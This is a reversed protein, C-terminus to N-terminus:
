STPRSRATAPSASSASMFPKALLNDALRLALAVAALTPNAQGATPFVSSGSVYLNAVDHVRCQSNVVGLHPDESMRTLGLQHYGDLAQKLVRELREGPEALYELQGLGASQLARNLVDHSEVVSKTDETQFRFNIRLSPLETGDQRELLTVRNEPDPFQEAHYRLLYRGRPNLLAFVRKRFPQQRLQALVQLTSILLHPDQRINALHAQHRREFPTPSPALGRGLRPYLRLTALALYFM